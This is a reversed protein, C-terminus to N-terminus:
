SHSVRLMACANSSALADSDDDAFWCYVARADRHRLERARAAAHVYSTNSIVIATADLALAAALPMIPIRRYDGAVRAFRDDGIALVEVGCIEAARVFAHVNKGLDAFVVCRHGDRAVDGMRREISRWSFVQELVAADLRRDAYARRQDQAVRFGEHAGQQFAESQGHLAALWHYRMVWDDGYIHLYDDPLYRHALWLNNRADYRMTQAGIRGSPSKLHTVHLDSFMEVRWGAQLLRFALDYEEAAMFLSLDLGGVQQYAARRFGVGCGVYVHPLASCERAGHPLHVQFGAAALRPDDRFHALMCEVSGPQPYSDDDLMLLFEGGARQAGLAKACAGINGGAEICLVRADARLMEAAGDASDNDVVIIEVEDRVLGVAALQDLTEAVVARRNWTALIVSLLPEAM